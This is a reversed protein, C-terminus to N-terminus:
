KIGACKKCEEQKIIEERLKERFTEFIPKNWIDILSEENVNGFSYKGLITSYVNCCWKIFGYADIVMKTSPEFCRKRTHPNKPDVLGIRNSLISNKKLVRYVFSKREEESLKKAFNFKKKPNYRTVVIGDAGNNILNRFLELGGEKELETGNTFIIIQSKPLKTKFYDLFDPLREDLLPENYYHPSFSGEYNLDALQDVINKFTSKEMRYHERSNKSVPCIKCSLNCDTQTEIEFHVPFNLNRSYIHSHYLDDIGAFIKNSKIATRTIWDLSM